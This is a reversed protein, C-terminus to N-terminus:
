VSALRQRGTVDSTVSDGDRKFKNDFIINAPLGMKLSGTTESRRSATTLRVCGHGPWRWRSVAGAGNALLGHRKRCTQPSGCPPPALFGLGRHLVGDFREVPPSILRAFPLFAGSCISLIALRQLLCVVGRIGVGDSTATWKYCDASYRRWGLRRM